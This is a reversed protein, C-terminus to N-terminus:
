RRAMAHAAHAARAAHATEHPRVPHAFSLTSVLLACGLAFATIRRGLPPSETSVLRILRRELMGPRGLFSPQLRPGHRAACAVSLLLEAYANPDGLAAVVRRDCDTEVALRLRWLQWWLPLNFPVLSVAVSAAALLRSDHAKRHEEEHRLVYERRMRPLALVWRPLLLRSRWFGVTAPGLSDTVIVEIGDVLMEDNKRRSLEESTAVIRRLWLASVAGWALLAVSCAFSIPAVVQHYLADSEPWGGWFPVFRGANSHDSLVLWTRGWLQLAPAAHFMISVAPLLVSAAIVGSWLWRRSAGTPLAYEILAGAITLCISTALVYLVCLM